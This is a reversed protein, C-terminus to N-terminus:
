MTLALDGDNTPSPSRIQNRILGKVMDQYGIMPPNGLWDLTAFERDRRDTAGIPRPGM